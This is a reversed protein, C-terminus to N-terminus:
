KVELGFSGSASTPASAALISDGSSSPPPLYLFATGHIGRGNKDTLQGVVILSAETMSRLSSASARDGIARQVAGPGLVMITLSVVGLAKGLRRVSFDTVKSRFVDRM